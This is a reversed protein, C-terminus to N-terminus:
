PAVTGSGKAGGFAHMAGSALSPGSVIGALDASAQVQKSLWTKFARSPVIEVGPLHRFAEIEPRLGEYIQRARVARRRAAASGPAGANRAAYRVPDEAYNARERALHQRIIQHLPTDVLVRRHGTTLEPAALIHTGEIIHPQPLKVAEQVLHRRLAQWRAYWPPDTVRYFEAPHCEVMPVIQRFDPDEDLRHLPLQLQRSLAKALTSKGAGCAGTVFIHQDARSQM